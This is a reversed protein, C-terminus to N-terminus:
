KSEYDRWEYYIWFEENEDIGFSSVYDVIYPYKGDKKFWQLNKKVIRITDEFGYYKWYKRVEQVVEDPCDSWQADLIYIKSFGKPTDEPNPTDHWKHHVSATKGSYELKM